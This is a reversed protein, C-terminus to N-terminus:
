RSIPPPTAGSGSQLTSNVAVILREVDYPKQIFGALKRGGFRRSAETEDFGSSLIVPVEPKIEQIISLAEEGAMVPMLLDLVVLSILDGHQRLIEVGVKGNEATLVKFGHRELATRTLNCIIEEDDIVLVTEGHGHLLVPKQSNAAIAAGPAAPILVQFSTGHGPTSYVRIAGRHGRVIGLAAALGLGRGTFKTTFFPDFIRARTAEDMGSGSDSVEMWVYSGPHLQDAAFGEEVEQESLERARTRIEVKGPRNEGIAEAGNIVLNM